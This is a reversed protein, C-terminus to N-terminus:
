YEFGEEAVELQQTIDSLNHGLIMPWLRRKEGVDNQNPFHCLAVGFENNGLICINGFLDIKAQKPLKEQKRIYERIIDMNPLIAGNWEPAAIPTFRVVNPDTDFGTMTWGICSAPEVMFDYDSDPRNTGKARSGVLKYEM